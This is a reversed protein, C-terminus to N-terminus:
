FVRLMEREVQQRVRPKLSRLTGLDVPAHLLEALYDQLAFFALYGVPRDFEVLLDVDSSVGARGRAVSGFLALSRVSFRTTLESRHESLLRAVQDRNM